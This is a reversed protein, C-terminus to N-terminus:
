SDGVAFTPRAGHGARDIGNIELELINSEM